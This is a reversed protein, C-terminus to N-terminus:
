STNLRRAWTSVQPLSRRRGSIPQCLRQPRFGQLAVVEDHRSSTDGPQTQSIVQDV